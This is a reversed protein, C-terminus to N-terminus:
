RRWRPSCSSAFLPESMVAGGVLILPLYIAALGLAVLAAVSGGSSAAIVGILAVLAAGVFAQAIRAVHVRETVPKRDAKFVHYVAGCSTRTAPRASRPRAATPSRRPSATARRRDLRPTSTTTSARRPSRTAPTADVYGIRLVLAAAVLVLALVGVRAGRM